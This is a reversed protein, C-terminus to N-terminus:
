PCAGEVPEPCPENAPPVNVRAVNMGGDEASECTLIQFVPGEDLRTLFLIEPYADLTGALLDSIFGGFRYGLEGELWTHDRLVLYLHDYNACNRRVYSVLKEYQLYQTYPRESFSVAAPRGLYFVIDVVDTGIILDNQTIHQEIWTLRESRAPPAM